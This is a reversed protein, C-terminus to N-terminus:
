FYTSQGKYIRSLKLPVLKGSYRIQGSFSGRVTADAYGLDSVSMSVNFIGAPSTIYLMVFYSTSRKGEKKKAEYKTIKGEVTAGGVGNIGIGFPSGIQLVVQNSDLAIFNLLKSVSARYGRGNGLYDAELVFRHNEIMAATVKRLEANQREKEAKKQEKQLQKFEKKSLVSEEQCISFLCICIAPIFLIIKKM